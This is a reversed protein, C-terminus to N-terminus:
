DVMFTQQALHIHRLYAFIAAGVKKGRILEMLQKSKVPESLRCGGYRVHARFRSDIEDIWASQVPLERTLEFSEM